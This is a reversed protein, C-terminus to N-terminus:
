RANSYKFPSEPFVLFLCGAGGGPNIETQDTRIRFGNSLFDLDETSGVEEDDSTNAQLYDDVVNYTSRKNDYIMWNQSATQWRKIM